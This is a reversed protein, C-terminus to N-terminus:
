AAGDFETIEARERQFKIYAQKSMLPRDSSKLEEAPKAGGALLGSVVMAMLKARM